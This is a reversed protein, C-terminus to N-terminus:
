WSCPFHEAVWAAVAQHVQNVSDARAVSRVSRVYHLAAESQLTRLHRWGSVFDAGWSPPLASCAVLDTCLKPLVDDAVFLAQRSRKLKLRAEIETPREKRLAEVATPTLVDLNGLRVILAAYSVQYNDSLAYLADALVDGSRFKALNRLIDVAPMLMEGAFQDADKDDQNRPAGFLDIHGHEFGEHRLVFHALEHTASWRMRDDPQDSNIIVACKDKGPLRVIAGDIKVLTTFRLLVGHADLALFPDFPLEMQGIDRRLQECREPIMASESVDPLSVSHSWSLLTEEVLKIENRDHDDLPVDAGGRFNVVATSADSQVISAGALLAEPRVRYLSSLKLLEPVKPTREGRELAGIAQRSVGAIAGALTQSTRALRRAQLFSTATMM